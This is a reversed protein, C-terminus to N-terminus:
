NGSTFYALRWQEGVHKFGARLGTGAQRPCQVYEGVMECPQTTVWELRAFESPHAKLEGIANDPSLTAGATWGFQPAMMARLGATDRRASAEHVQQIFAAADPPVLPGAQAALPWTCAAALALAAARLPTPTHNPTNM